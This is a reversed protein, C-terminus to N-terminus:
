ARRVRVATTVESRPHARVGALEARLRLKKLLQQVAALEEQASAGKLAIVEGGPALMPLVWPLFKRLPAVARGTVVEFSGRYDEARSRQVCVHDTIGLNDVAQTLFTTRRQMPELLTIRLDPRLIALPIGPLGAGSGVDVVDAGVPILDAISVSNLLHRDWLREVERPGILGWEIGQGALLDRYDRALPFREGFVERAIAEGDSM